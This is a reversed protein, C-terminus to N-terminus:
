NPRFLPSATSANFSVPLKHRWNECSKMPNPASDLLKPRCRVRIIHGDGRQPHRDLGGSAPHPSREKPRDLLSPASGTTGRRRVAPRRASLNLATGDQHRGQGSAARHHRGCAVPRRGPFPRPDSRPDAAPRRCLGRGRRGPPFASRLARAVYVKVPGGQGFM